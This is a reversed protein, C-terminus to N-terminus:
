NYFYYKKDIINVFEDIPSYSIYNNISELIRCKVGNICNKSFIEIYPEKLFGINNIYSNYQNIYNEIFERQLNNKIKFYFGDESIINFYFENVFRIMEKNSIIFIKKM